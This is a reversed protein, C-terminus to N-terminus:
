ICIIIIIFQNFYYLYLMSMTIAKVVSIDPTTLYNYVEKKFLSM